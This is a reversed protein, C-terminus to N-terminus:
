YKKIIDSIIQIDENSIRFYLGGLKSVLKLHEIQGLTADHPILFSIGENLGSPEETLYGDDRLYDLMQQKDWSDMEDYIDDLDVSINISM